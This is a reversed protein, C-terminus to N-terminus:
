QEAGLFCDRVQRCPKCTVEILPGNCYHPRDSSYTAGIPKGCAAWRGDLSWHMLPDHLKPRQCVACFPVDQGCSPCSSRM